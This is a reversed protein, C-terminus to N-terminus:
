LADAAEAEPEILSELCPTASCACTPCLAEALEAESHHSIYNELKQWYGKDDRIKKCSACIPILGRLVKRNGQAETLEDLTATMRSHLQLNNIIMVGLGVLVENLALLTFCLMQVGTVAFINIERSTNFWFEAYRIILSLTVLIKFFAIFRSVFVLSKDSSGKWFERATALALVAPYLSAFFIRVKPIDEIFYFYFVFLLPTLILGRTSWKLAPRGFLMRAGSIRVVGALMYFINALFISLTLSILTKRSMLAFYALGMYLSSLPWKSFGSGTQQKRLYFFLCFAVTWAIIFDCFFLTYTDIIM